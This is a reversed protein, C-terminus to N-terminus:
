REELPNQGEALNPVGPTEFEIGQEQNYEEEGKIEQDLLRKDETPLDYIGQMKQNPDNNLHYKILEQTAVAYIKLTKNRNFSFYRLTLLNLLETRNESRLHLDESIYFFLM